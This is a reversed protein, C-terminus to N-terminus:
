TLDIVEPEKSPAKKVRKAKNRDGKGEGSSTALTEFRRIRKEREKEGGMTATM